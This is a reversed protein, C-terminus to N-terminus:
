PGALLEDIRVFTYGKQKIEGILEDLLCYFKDGRQPSSGVHSLLIFGNLGGPQNNEFEMISQYIDQSSRYPPTGPLTYDAHSLTGPTYNILQLGMFRTWAAITDNYWEFPPLFFPADNPGIGYASMARYNEKLDAQFEEWTLLLSDRKEWDCYLLHQDSHAGLYHGYAVLSEILSRFEPNKYFEGTFFFSAPIRNKKLVQRIPDGGEAFEHGTFVLALNKKATDGRIIAGAHYHFVAPDPLNQGSLSCSILLSLISVTPIKRKM